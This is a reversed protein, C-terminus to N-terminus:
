PLLLIEPEGDYTNVKAVIDPERKNGQQTDTYLEKDIFEVQQFNLRRAIYPLFLEIIDQFFSKLVSKFMQDTPM